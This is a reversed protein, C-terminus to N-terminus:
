MEKTVEAGLAFPELGFLAEALCSELEGRAQKLGPLVELAVAVAGLQDRLDRRELGLQLRQELAM